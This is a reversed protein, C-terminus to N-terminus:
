ALNGLGLKRLLGAMLWAPGVPLCALDAFFGPRRGELRHGISQGLWALALVAGALLALRHAGLGAYLAQTALGLAAFALLLALALARARKWYGHFALVMAMVAWAGPRLLTPPVPLTWLLAIASWAIAPVCAGHLLRNLRHRHGAGYSDLWDQRSRPHAPTASM